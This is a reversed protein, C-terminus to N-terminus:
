RKKFIRLPSLLLHGIKYSWTAKYASVASSVALKTIYSSDFLSSHIEPLVSDSAVCLNFLPSFYTNVQTSEYNGSYEYFKASTKENLILSGSVHKQSLFDANKFSANILNKFDEYYLEKVHFANNFSRIDTYYKKDPSSMLLVGNPKLVRKIEDIMEQHKDHHELTEFSVVVDISRTAVPIKSASGEKFILNSRKYKDKASAITEKSIDVGVVYNAEKSLLMSGYGEGSAIDLVDLSKCIISAIAYRHLHDIAIDNLICTELREGTWVKSM